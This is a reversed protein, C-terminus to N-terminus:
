FFSLYISASLCSRRTKSHTHKHMWMVKQTLMYMVEYIHAHVYVLRHKYMNEHSHPTRLERCNLKLFMLCLNGEVSGWYYLPKACTPHSTDLSTKISTNKSVKKEWLVAPKCLYLLLHSSAKKKKFPLQCLEQRMQMWMYWHICCFSLLIFSVQLSFCIKTHNYYYM